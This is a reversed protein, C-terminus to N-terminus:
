KEGMGNMVDLLGPAADRGNYIAELERAQERIPEVFDTFWGEEEIDDAMEDLKDRAILMLDSADGRTYPSVFLRQMVWAAARTHDGGYNIHRRLWPEILDALDGLADAAADSDYPGTGWAGM